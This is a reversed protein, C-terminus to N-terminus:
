PRSIDQCWPQGSYIATSPCPEHSQNTADVFQQAQGQKGILAKKREKLLKM